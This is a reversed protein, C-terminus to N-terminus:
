PVSARSPRVGARPSRLISVNVSTSPGTSVWAISVACGHAVIASSRDPDLAVRRGIRIRALVQEVELREDAVRQRSPAADLDRAGREADLAAGVATNGRAARVLSANLIDSPLKPSKSASDTDTWDPVSAIPLVWLWSLCSRTAYSLAREADVDGDGLGSGVHRAAGEGVADREPRRRGDFLRPNDTFPPM